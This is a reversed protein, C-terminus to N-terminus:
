WAGGLSLGFTGDTTATPAVHLEGRPWLIGAAVGAGIALVGATIAIPLDRHYRDEAEAAERQLTTGTFDSHADYALYAFLGATIGFAGALVVGGVALQKRRHRREPLEAVVAPDAFRVGLSGTSDVFGQYYSRGYATTFLSTQYTVEMSGRSAVTLPRWSVDNIAIQGRAPLAAERTPTRMFTGDGDPVAIAISDAGVHADLYRQGNALEIQFHGLTAPNGKILHTGSIQDLAILGVNQDAAPPKAVVLPIARPDKIDRNAAAIFAQLETYEVVRDGNVDAAGVLGSLLEHTFVGSEIASWEHAEQGLTTALLVGIQPYRALPGARLIPEIDAATTPAKTTEREKAFFDGGRVGVVGGAHCADVILHTFTAPIKGLIQDYLAVQTLKGDLLVLFPEGDEGRAGHGSFAFFLVPRDGRKRDATMKATLDEVIRDLNARTPPQAQAALGAYRRQTETDMVVLLHAEGLRAFLQYYRVADDDAYRLPQLVEATGSAPPANNGIVIAYTVQKGEAHVIGAGLVVLAIVFARIM